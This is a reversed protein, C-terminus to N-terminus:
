EYAQEMGLQHRRCVPPPPNVWGGSNRQRSELFGPVFWRNGRPCATGQYYFVIKQLKHGSYQVWYDPRPGFLSRCQSLILSHRSPATWCGSRVIVNELVLVRFSERIPSHARITCGWTWQGGRSPVDALRSCILAPHPRRNRNHPVSTANATPVTGIFIPLVYLYQKTLGSNYYFRKRYAHKSFLSVLLDAVRHCEFPMKKRHVNRSQM